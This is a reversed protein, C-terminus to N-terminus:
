RIQFICLSIWLSCSTLPPVLAECLTHKNPSSFFLLNPDPTGHLGASTRTIRHVRWFLRRKQQEEPTQSHFLCTYCKNLHLVQEQIREPFQFVHTFLHQIERQDSFGQCWLLLFSPCTNPPYCLYSVFTLRLFVSVVRYLLFFCCWCYISLQLFTPFTISGLSSPFPFSM